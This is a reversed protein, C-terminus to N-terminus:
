LRAWSRAARAPQGTVAASARRWPLRAGARMRRSCKPRRIISPPVEDPYGRLERSAWDRLEASKPQGGLALCRRLAAAVSKSEDLVDREIEALLDSDRRAVMARGAGTGQRPTKFMAM